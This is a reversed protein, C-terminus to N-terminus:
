CNNKSSNTLLTEYNNNHLIFTKSMDLITSKRFIKTTDCFTSISRIFRKIRYM